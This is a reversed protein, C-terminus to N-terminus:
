EGEWPYSLQDTPLPTLISQAVVREDRWATGSYLVAQEPRGDLIGVTLPEGVAVSGIPVEWRLLVATEVGPPMGSVWSGDAQVRVLAARDISDLQELADFWLIDTVAGDTEIWNNTVVASVFLFEHGEQPESYTDPTTAGVWAETLAISYHRGNYSEGVPLEPVKASRLSATQWGGLPIAVLAAVGLTLATALLAITLRSPRARM